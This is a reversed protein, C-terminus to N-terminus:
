SKRTMATKAAADGKFPWYIEQNATLGSRRFILIILMLLGIGVEAGGGPLAVLTEGINFGIQLQRLAEYLTSIVIGGLVAGSLSQM